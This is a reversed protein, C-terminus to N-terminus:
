HRGDTTAFVPFDARDKMVPKGDSTTVATM